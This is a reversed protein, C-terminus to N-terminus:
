SIAIKRWMQPLTGHQDSNTWLQKATCVFGAANSCLIANNRRAAQAIVKARRFTVQRWAHRNKPRPEGSLRGESFTM